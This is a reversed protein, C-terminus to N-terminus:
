ISAGEAENKKANEKMEYHMQSASVVQDRGNSKANKMAKKAVEIFDSFATDEARNTKDITEIGASFSLRILLNDVSLPWADLQNRMRDVVHM